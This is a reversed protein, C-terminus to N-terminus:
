DYHGGISCAGGLYDREIQELREDERLQCGDGYGEGYAELDADDTYAHAAKPRKNYGDRHGAEYATMERERKARQARELILRAAALVDAPDSLGKAELVAAQLLLDAMAARATDDMTGLPASSTM